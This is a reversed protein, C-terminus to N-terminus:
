ADAAERAALGEAALAAVSEPTAAEGRDPVLDAVLQRFVDGMNAAWYDRRDPRGEEPADYSFWLGSGGLGASSDLMVSNGGVEASIWGQRLGAMQRPGLLKFTVTVTHERGDYEAPPNADPM